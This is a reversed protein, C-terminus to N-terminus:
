VGNPTHAHAWASAKLFPMDVWGYTDLQCHEIFPFNNTCKVNHTHRHKNRSRWTQATMFVCVCVCLQVRRIIGNDNNSCWNCIKTHITSAIFAAGIVNVMLTAAATATAVTATNGMGDLTHQSHTHTTCSFTYFDKQFFLVPITKEHEHRDAIAQRTSKGVLLDTHTHCTLAYLSHSACMHWGGRM